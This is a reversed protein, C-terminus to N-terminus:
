NNDFLFSFERMVLLNNTNTCDAHCMFKYDTYPEESLNTIRNFVFSYTNILSYYDDTDFTELFKINNEAGNSIAEFPDTNPPPNDMIYYLESNLGTKALSFSKNTLNFNCVVGTLNATYNSGEQLNESYYDSIKKNLEYRYGGGDKVTEFIQANMSSPFIYWDMDFNFTVQESDSGANVFMMFYKNDESHSNLPIVFKTEGVKHNICHNGDFLEQGNVTTEALFSSGTVEKYYLQTATPIPNKGRLRLVLAVSEGELIECGLLDDLEECYVFASGGGYNKKNFTLAKQSHGSIVEDNSRYEFKPLNEQFTFGDKSIKVTSSSKLPTLREARCYDEPFSHNFLFERIPQGERQFVFTRSVPDGGYTCSLSYKYSSDPFNSNPELNYYINKIPSDVEGGWLKGYEKFLSISDETTGTGSSSFSNPNAIRKTVGGEYEVIMSLPSQTFHSLNVIVESVEGVQVEVDSCNGSLVLYPLSSEPTEIFMDLMVKYKEYVPVYAFEFELMNDRLYQGSSEYVSAGGAEESQVRITKIQYDYYSEDGKIQVLFTYNVTGEDANRAANSEAAQIMDDLPISFNIDGTKGFFNFNCSFLLTSLVLFSIGLLRKM